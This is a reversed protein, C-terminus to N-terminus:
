FHGHVTGQIKSFPCQIQIIGTITQSVSTMSVSPLSQMYMISAATNQQKDPIFQCGAEYLQTRHELKCDAGPFVRTVSMSEYRTAEAKDQGTTYFPADINYEDFVGWRLHAWEHVFVRGRSGYVAQLNDNTLFNPTFHIYRGQEGCGGYQLTYPDDGYKLFPDAVIADAKEYSETTVPKYKPMSTWKLPIVVKVAKFYFRQKSANFLYVSAERVMAKISAIIKDDEPVGPNIAIVIDEFGGNNLKIMTGTAGNLLELVMVLLWWNIVM